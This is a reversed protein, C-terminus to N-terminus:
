TGGLIYVPFVNVKYHLLSASRVNNLHNFHVDATISWVLLMAKGVPALSFVIGSTKSRSFIYLRFSVM